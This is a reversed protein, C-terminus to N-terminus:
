IAAYGAFVSGQIFAWRLRREKQEAVSLDLRNDTAGWGDAMNIMKQWRALADGWRETKGLTRLSEIAAILATADADATLGAETLYRQQVVHLAAFRRDQAKTTM